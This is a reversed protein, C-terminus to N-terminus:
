CRPPRQPDIGAPRSRCAQRYDQDVGDARKSASHFLASQTIFYPRVAASAMIPHEVHIGKYVGEPEVVEAAQVDKATNDHLDGELQDDAADMPTASVQQDLMASRPIRVTEDGDQVVEAVDEDQDEEDGEAAQRATSDAYGDGDDLRTHVDSPGALVTGGPGRVSGGLGTNM